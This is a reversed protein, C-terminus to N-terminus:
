KILPSFAGGWLSKKMEAKEDAATEKADEAATEKEDVSKGMCDCLDMSKGCDACTASKAIEDAAAPEDSKAVPLAQGCEKCTASKEINEETANQMEGQKSPAVAHTAGSPITAENPVVAESNPADSVSTAGDTPRTDQSILHEGGAKPFSKNVAINGQPDPETTNSMTNGGMQNNTNTNSNGRVYNEVSREDREENASSSTGISKIMNTVENFFEKTNM